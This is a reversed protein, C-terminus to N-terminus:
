PTNMETALLTFTIFISWFIRYNYDFNFNCRKGSVIYFYITQYKAEATNVYVNIM